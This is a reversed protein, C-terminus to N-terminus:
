FGLGLMWAQIAARHDGIVVISGAVHQVEAGRCVKSLEEAIAEKDGRFRRVATRTKKKRELYVPLNNGASSRFFRFPLHEYGGQPPVWGSATVSQPDIARVPFKLNGPPEWYEIPLERQKTFTNEATQKTCFYRSWRFGLRCPEMAIFRIM